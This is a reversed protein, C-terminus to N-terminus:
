KFTDLVAEIDTADNSYLHQVTNPDNAASAGAVASDALESKTVKDTNISGHSPPTPTPCEPKYHSTPTAHPADPLFTLDHDGGKKKLNCLAQDFQGKSHTLKLFGDPQKGNITVCFAWNAPCGAPPRAPTPTQAFARLIFVLVIVGVVCAVFSIKGSLTKM